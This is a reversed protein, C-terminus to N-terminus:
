EPKDVKLLKISKVVEAFLYPVCVLDFFFYAINWWTGDPNISTYGQYILLLLFALFWFSYWWLRLM